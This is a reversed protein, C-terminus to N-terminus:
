RLGNREIVTRCKITMQDVIACDSLSLVFEVAKGIDSPAIMQNSLLGSGVSMDTDVIDPCLTTVKVGESILEQALSQGYGVVAFKSAAYGGIPAFGEVGAISSINFIHACNSQKLADLCVRCINHMAKVNVMLLDDMENIAMGSTGFHFVGASNVLVDLRGMAAIEKSIATAVDDFARLDVAVLSVDVGHRKTLSQAAERLRELNRAVLILRYGRSALSEAIERGIGRSAGTVLAVNSM